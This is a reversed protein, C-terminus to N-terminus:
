QSNENELRVLELYQPDDRIYETSGPEDSSSGTNTLSDQLTDLWVQENTVVGKSFGHIFGLAGFTLGVKIVRKNENWFDKIQHCYYRYAACNDAQVAYVKTLEM